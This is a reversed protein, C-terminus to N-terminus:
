DLWARNLSVLGIERGAQEVVLEGLTTHEYIHLARECMLYVSLTYHGKLLQFKPFVVTARGVGQPDRVISVGDYFTSCSTIHRGTHDSVVLAVTPTPLTLSSTFAVEVKFDSQLSQLLWARGGSAQVVGDVWVRVKALRAVGTPESNPGPGPGAPTTDPEFVGGSLDSDAAGARPSSGGFAQQAQARDEITQTLAPGPDSNTLSDDPPNILPSILPNVPHHALLPNNGGKSKASEAEAMQDLFQNYQLCVDGAPGSAKVQGRDLWIARECLAEVQYINHSCFLITVGQDKLDMIRDFSKRAFAGDGVSLAEDIVLIDPEVSTAIAFALRVYMGSSYTKVAQDIFDGIGSFEIIAPTKQRIEAPSLGLLTANLEINERGTFDPNFGAGLELLAAIRGQVHVAGESPQLVGCILQLLSSKGAGNVGVVGLVEGRKLELSVARLSWFEPSPSPAQNPVQNPVQNPSPNFAQDAHSVSNALGQTVTRWRALLVQKLRERPSAFVRYRKSVGQVRIAWDGGEHAANDMSRVSVLGKAPESQLASEQPGNYSM